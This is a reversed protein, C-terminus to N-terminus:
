VRVSSKLLERWASESEGVRGDPLVGGGSTLATLQLLCNTTGLGEGIERATARVFPESARLDALHTGM